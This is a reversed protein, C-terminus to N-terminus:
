TYYGGNGDWYYTNSGDSYIYTGYTFFTSNYPLWTYGGNGDALAATESAEKSPYYSASGSPVEVPNSTIYNGDGGYYYNIPKYSVGAYTTSYSGSGDHLWNTGTYTFSQYNESLETIYIDYSGSVSDTYIITDTSAYFVSRVSSWDVYTGGSGDNLVDVDCVENPYDGNPITVAQGGQAIPYTAGFLTSNFSGAPPFSAPVSPFSVIKGFGNHSSGSSITTGIWHFDVGM